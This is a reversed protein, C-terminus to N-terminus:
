RPAGGTRGSSPQSGETEAASQKGSSNSVKLVSGDAAFLIGRIEEANFPRSGMRSTVAIQNGSEDVYRDRIQGRAVAVAKGGTPFSAILEPQPDPAFGLYGPTDVDILKVIRLGNKGDAVYAFYSVNTTAVTVDYADNLAGNANFFTPAKPKEPNQIDIIALGQSGAAVYAFTRCLTLNRADSLAVTAGPVLRPQEPHTIDFVKMGTRDLVFAYRLQIEIARAGNLDGSASQGVLKPQTPNDVDVISLGTQESVVFAYHGWTKVMMAGSLRGEPNFVVDRHLRNDEPDNDELTNIDILIL